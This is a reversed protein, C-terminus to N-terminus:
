TNLSFRDQSYINTDTYPLYFFGEKNEFINNINKLHTLQKELSVTIEKLWSQPVPKVIVLHTKELIVKSQPSLEDLSTFVSWLTLPRFESYAFTNSIYNLRLMQGIVSENRWFKPPFDIFLRVPHKFNEEDGRAFNAICELFTVMRPLYDCACYYIGPVSPEAIWRMDTSYPDISIVPNPITYQYILKASDTLVINITDNDSFQSTQLLSLILLSKGVGTAGLVLHNGPVFSTFPLIKQEM